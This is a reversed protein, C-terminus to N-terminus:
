LGVKFDTNDMDAQSPTGDLVAFLTRNASTGGDADYYLNGTSADYLIRASGMVATAGGSGVDMYDSAALTAGTSSGATSLSAFVAKSLWITDAGGGDADFNKVRDVNTAADLATDFYFTDDGSAGDLIDNGAGGHIHDNQQQGNVYDNGAGAFVVDNQGMALVLDDNSGALNITNDLGDGTVIRFTETLITSGQQANVALSYIRNADLTGTSVVGTTSVTLDNAYDAPTLAGLSLTTASLSGASFAYTGSGGTVSLQGLTTSVPLSNGSISALVGLSIASTPVVTADATGTITVVVDQTDTASGDSSTLTYTLQLTEGAALFDFAQAGSDFRWTINNLDSGDAAVNSPPVISMMGLLTSSSPTGTGGYTGGISVASVMTTVTNTIDADRVTLTDSATLGADTEALVVAASDGAQITVQPADNDGKLTISVLQSNDGIQVTYSQVRTEGEALYQLASNDVSFSWAQSGGTGNGTTDTFAGLSFSGLYGTDSGPVISVAHADLLDVDTFTIAGSAGYDASDEEVVEGQVASTIQVQDNDGKLTISVVQSADGVTVTYNQVLEQGEALYQLASNDVSFSWAQSGGTGSGTTDTFAGLSFSGLYGTAAGPVISVAHADLLDVDTFTIAGTASYDASDEEVTEAQVASTIQVQDNAGTITITVDQTTTGGDGDSVTVTFTENVSDGAGLSQVVSAVGNAGNALTYTWDGSSSDVVFSGYVGVDSSSYTLTTGDDIDGADVSGMAVLTGDEAVDDAQVASTIVPADNTGTITITVTQEDFGGKDDTVRVTFTDTATEGDALTQVAGDVGNTGNDLTYTWQGSNGNLALAGYAGTASGQISWNAAAGNDIDESTLTGTATLDTDEAATDTATGSIVPADNTGTITITVVQSTTGGDGDSVTVTFTETEVDGEGLSQVVSSVGNAGNALAYTWDGNSADVVFSGFNGISSGSYSLITGGDVDGADVSGSAGLVGDEQVSGAQAASTVVPQDNTGSVKFEAKAWALTGNGLRIAYVFSDTFSDGEGLANVKQLYTADMTVQVKGNVITLRAGLATVNEQGNVVTGTDSVALDKLITQTSEASITGDSNVVVGDDVSYLTKASGGLDNYMVDLTLVGNLTDISAESYAWTDAKAQPTNSFSTLNITSGM